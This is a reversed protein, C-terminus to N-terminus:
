DGGWDQAGGAYLLQLMCRHKLNDTALLIKRVEEKSLVTPLRDPKEPREVNNLQVEHRGLVRQFYFKVANISQNIFSCSYAGTQVMQRHYRNIDEETFACVQDMGRDKHTNLFRLLLSHYTRITNMSYNLLFLKELYDIPCTIYGTGKAYTQEWLKRLLVVDRVVLEQSLWLWGVGELEEALAQIHQGGEPIAFCKQERQWAALKSNKLTEYVQQSYRFTVSIVTKSEEILMPQLKVVPMDPLKQLPEGQQGGAVVPVLRDPKLRKPRNLYRTNVKALGQFLGFNMEMSQPRHHMVFCKYTKSYKIWDAEKLRKVIFPNPKHWLRIYKHGEHELANLYIVPQTSSLQM